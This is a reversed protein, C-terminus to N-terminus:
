NRGQDGEPHGTQQSNDERQLCAEMSFFVLEVANLEPCNPPTFQVECNYSRFTGDRSECDHIPDSGCIIYIQREHGLRERLCKLFTTFSEATSAGKTLM